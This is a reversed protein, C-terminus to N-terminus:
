FINIMPGVVAHPLKLIACSNNSNRNNSNLFSAKSYSRTQHSAYDIRYVIIDDVIELNMKIDCRHINYVSQAKVIFRM